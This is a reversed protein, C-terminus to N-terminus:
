GESPVLALALAYRLQEVFRDRWAPNDESFRATRGLCWEHYRMCDDLTSGCVGCHTRTRSAALLAAVERAVRVGDM